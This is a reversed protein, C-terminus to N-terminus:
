PGLPDVPGTDSGGAMVGTHQHSLFSHGDIKTHAGITISSTASITANTANVNVTLATVTIQGSKIDVLTQGDDTRLQASATSYNTLKRPQSRVGFVAIGDSLSHRRQDFPKINLGGSEFWAWLPTDAFLVICEDGATIPFTLNLGGGNPIQIPIGSLLPLPEAQTQMAIGPLQVGDSQGFWFYETTTIQVDVTQTDPYFAVVQGPLCVRLMQMLAQAMQQFRTVSANLRQLASVGFNFTSM